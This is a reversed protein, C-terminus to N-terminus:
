FDSDTPARLSHYSFIDVCNSSVIGQEEPMEGEGTELPKLADQCDNTSYNELEAEEKESM